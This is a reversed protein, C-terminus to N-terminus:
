YSQKKIVKQYSLSLCEFKNKQLAQESLIGKSMRYIYVRLCLNSQGQVFTLNEASKWRAGMSVTNSSSAMSWTTPAVATSSSLNPLFGAM